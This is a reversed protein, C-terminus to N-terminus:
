LPTPFGLTRALEAQWEDLTLFPLDAPDEVLFLACALHWADAGRSYGAEFVMTVERSLPRDPIVWTIWTLYHGGGAVEERAVASRLEAELLNASFRHDKWPGGWIGVAENTSPM